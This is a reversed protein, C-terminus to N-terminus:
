TENNGSLRENIPKAFMLMILAVIVFAAVLLGGVEFVWLMGDNYSKPDDIIHLM